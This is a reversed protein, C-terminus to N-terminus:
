AMSIVEIAARYGTEMAGHVTGHHGNFNSAEGAFFIRGPIPTALNVRASLMGLPAYSVSGGIFQEKSWDMIFSDVLTSSASNGGFMRDLEELLIDVAAAGQTSLFEAKLGAAKGMLVADNSERDQLPDLYEPCREGGIIKGRPWFRDSFRMVIQIGADMGIHDIGWQKLSSFGPVFEIDGRQLITLPVAVIVQDASHEDGEADSVVITDGSYDIRTVQRNLMIRERLPAVIADDIVDYLSGQLRWAGSGQTRSRIDQAYSRVGLREPSTGQTGAFYDVINLFEASVGIREAYDTLTIDLGRYSGLSGLLIDLVPQAGPLASFDEETLLSDGHLYRGIGADAVLSAEDGRSRLLDFLISQRGQVLDAGLDITRDAFGDLKRIRGGYVPSAELITVQAGHRQLLLAAYLGAVGAGVIVVRGNYEKDAFLLNDKSCAALGPLAIGGATWLAASKLFERRSLNKM